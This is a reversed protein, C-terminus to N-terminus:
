HEKAELHPSPDEDEGESIASSLCQCCACLDGSELAVEIRGRPGGNTKRAFSVGAIGPPLRWRVWLVVIWAWKHLNREFLYNVRLALPHLIYNNDTKAASFSLSCHDKNDRFASSCLEAASQFIM